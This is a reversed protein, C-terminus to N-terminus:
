SPAQPRVARLAGLVVDGPEDLGLRGALVLYAALGAGTLGVLLALQLAFGSPPPLLWVLLGIPIGPLLSAITATRAVRALPGLEFDAERRSLSYAMVLVILGATMSTSLAVGAVGILRGFLLNFLLNLSAYAVGSWMLFVGRRRANHAGVMIPQLMSVALLPGFMAVVGTNAVAAQQDFAGRRFVVEVLLPALAVTAVSLPVFIALIYRFSMSSAAGLSVRLDPQATKVLSPYVVTSWAPGLVGTPLRVISEGYRLASVAGVSLISAVARDALLNFQLVAASATLPAAHRWFSALHARQARLGPIPLEGARAAAVFLTAFSTAAGFTTAAALATLGWADWLTVTLALSALPGLVAAVSIARFRGHIQAIAAFLGQLAAFLLLPAVFPLFGAAMARGGEDLGPGAIGIAPRGLLVVGATLAVGAGTTWTVIAGAM